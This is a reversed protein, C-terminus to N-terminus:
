HKLTIPQIIHIELCKDNLKLNSFNCLLRRSPEHTRMCLNNPLYDRAYEDSEYRINRSACEVNNLSKLRALKM